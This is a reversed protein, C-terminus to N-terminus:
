ALELDLVKSVYAKTGQILVPKETPNLWAALKELHKFDMATCGGTASGTSSWRHLFIASGKNPLPNPWNYEVFIALDYVAIEAMKEASDWDPSAISHRDVIQNYYKSKPDDVAELGPTIQQYDILIPNTPKAAHGYAKGLKFIGMPSKGDGEQKLHEEILGNYGFTGQFREGVIGWKEGKKSYLAIKGSISDLSESYAAIAQRM